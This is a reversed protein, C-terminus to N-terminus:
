RGALGTAARALAQVADPNAQRELERIDDVTVGSLIAITWGVMAIVGLVVGLVGLIYAAQTQGRGASTEGLVIRTRAQAACIWAAVSCPLALIFLVGLSILLMGLGIIGLVLATVALGNTPESSRAYVPRAARPAPPPPTEAQAPPSWGGAAPARPEPLEPETDFRPAPGAGPTSPPLWGSSTEDAM